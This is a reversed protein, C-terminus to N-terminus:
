AAVGQAAQSHLRRLDEVIGQQATISLDIVERAQAVYYALQEDSRALSQGLASEIRQLSDVLKDNGANFLGVGHSFAEGLSSLEVASAAGLTASEQVTQLLDRLQEALATREALAQNDREALATMEHKLRAIVEAAAQPVDSATQLMRTMPAELSSGLQGLHQAVAAQLRDLHQAMATQLADLRDVAAQGRQAEADRLTNLETRWVGALQDMRERQAQVWQAESAMRTHVLAESQELLRSVGLLTQGVHEGAHQTIQGAATELARLVTQQQDLTQQGVRQWETALTDASAAMRQHWADLRQQDAQTQQAQAQEAAQQLQALVAQSHQELTLNFGALSRELGQVLATQTQEHQHLAQTWTDSVAQATGSWQATLGQSVDQWQAALSHSLGQWQAQMGQSLGTWQAQATDALQQHAQASAQTLSAMAQEVMPRLTDSAQRASAALSHELSSGVREALQTYAATADRHFTHQQVLLQDNLQAHRRELGDMLAQLREAILPLAQAQTQLALLTDQRQQAPSFPRLQSGMRADLLRVALLRERRCLASLLGLMASTAVGAVSTGFALGLGKIPAALAARIADLDTSGELAFVAGKFTAVMGLFTGLMGLMVLLGVLYPTLTPGPLAGRDGGIRQRVPSQLAQPLRSLWADLDTLPQPMDALAASLGVTAARHQWLEVAGLVYVGAMVVTMLLAMPSTAVFGWGVWALAALGLAFVLTHLHKHNM